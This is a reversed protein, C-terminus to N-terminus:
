ARFVFAGCPFAVETLSGASLRHALEAVWLHLLAGVDALMRLAIVITTFGRHARLRYALHNALIRRGAPTVGREVLREWRLTCALGCQLGEPQAAVRRAQWLRMM